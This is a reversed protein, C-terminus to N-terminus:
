DFFCLSMRYLRNFAGPGDKLLLHVHDDWVVQDCVHYLLRIDINNFIFTNILKNNYINISIPIENDSDSLLLHEIFERNIISVDSTNDDHSSVSLVQNDRDM